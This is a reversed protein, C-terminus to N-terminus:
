LRTQGHLDVARKAIPKANASFEDHDRKIPINLSVGKPSSSTVDSKIYNGDKKTISQHSDDQPEPEEKVSKPQNAEVPEEKMRTNEFKSQSEPEEKLQNRTEWSLLCGTM